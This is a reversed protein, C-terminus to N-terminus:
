LKKAFKSVGQLKKKMVVGLKNSTTYRKRYLQDEHMILEEDKTSLIIESMIKKYSKSLCGDGLFFPGFRGSGVKALFNMKQYFGPELTRTEFNKAFIHLACHNHSLGRVNLKKM